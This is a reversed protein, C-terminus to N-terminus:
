ASFIGSYIDQYKDKGGIALMALPMIKKAEASMASSINRIDWQAHADERLRSLHYLERANCKFIVRRRHANTLVYAAADRDKEAIKTYLADTDSIVKKFEKDM